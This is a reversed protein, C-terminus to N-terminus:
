NQMVIVVVVVTAFMRASNEGLFTWLTLKSFLRDVHEQSHSSSTHFFTAIKLAVIQVSLSSRRRRRRHRRYRRALSTLRTSHLFAFSSSFASFVTKSISAAKASTRSSRPSMWRLCLFSTLKLAVQVRNDILSHLFFLALDFSIRWFEFCICIFCLFYCFKETRLNCRPTAHPTRCQDVQLTFHM